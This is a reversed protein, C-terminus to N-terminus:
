LSQRTRICSSDAWSLKPSGPDFQITWARGARPSRGADVRRSVWEPYLTHQVVGDPTAYAVIAAADGETVRGGRTANM